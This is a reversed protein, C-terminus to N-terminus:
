SRSGRPGADRPRPSATRAAGAGRELARDYVEEVRGAIAGWAYEPGLLPPRPAGAAPARLAAILADAWAAADRAVIAGAASGPSLVEGANGVDHALCPLGGALMELLAVSCGEYYSPLAGRDAAGIWSLVHAHPIPGTTLRGPERRPAAGGATVWLAEPLAARVRTWARRLLDTGKVFDDRGITLLLPAAEAVGHRARWAARGERSPDFSVGNPIVVARARDLGHHRVFEELVRRSVAIAPGPHRAARREAARARWNASSALTRLRGLRVYAAMKGAVCFHLTHVLPTSGAFGRPLIGAHHHIVDYRDPEISPVVRFPPFPDPRAHLAVDHGRAALGRALERVHTELGGPLSVDLAAVLLIRM